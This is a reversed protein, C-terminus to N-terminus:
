TNNGVNALHLLAQKLQENDTHSAISKMFDATDKSFPNPGKNNNKTQQQDSHFHNLNNGENNKEQELSTTAAVHNTNVIIKINAIGAWRTDRRLETLIDLQKFRFIHAFAHDKAALIACGQRYNVIHCKGRLNDPLIKQVALDLAHIAHCKNLLSGLSTSSDNLYHKLELLESM